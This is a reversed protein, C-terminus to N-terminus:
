GCLQKPTITPTQNFIKCICCTLANFYRWSIWLILFWFIMVNSHMREAMSKNLWGNLVYEAMFKNLWPIIVSVCQGVYEAMWKIFLSGIYEGFMKGDDRVWELEYWNDYLACMMWYCTCQYCCKWSYKWENCYKWGHFYLM